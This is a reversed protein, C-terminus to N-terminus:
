DSLLTPNMNMVVISLFIVTVGIMKGVNMQEKLILVSIVISVVLEVSAIVGLKSVQVNHLSPIYLCYPIVSVMLGFLIIIVFVSKNEVSLLFPVPRAFPLLMLSGFLFSYLIMTFPNYRGLTRKSLVPMMSYCFAAGLGFLIGSFNSKLVSFDGGTVGYICGIMCLLVAIVKQGTVMERYFITGLTFMMVPSFYLLVVATFVGVQKISAFYLLNFLGQSVVGISLAAILGAKDIRFISKDRILFTISLIVFGSFLRFFAITTSEMGHSELIKGFFGILGWFSAAIAIKIYNKTATNM